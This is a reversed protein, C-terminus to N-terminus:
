ENYWLPQIGLLAGMLSYFLKPKQHYKKFLLYAILTTLDPLASRLSLNSNGPAAIEWIPLYHNLDFSIAIIIASGIIANRWKYGLTFFM